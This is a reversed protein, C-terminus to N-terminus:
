NRTIEAGNKSGSGILNTEPGLEAPFRGFVLILIIITIVWELSLYSFLVCFRGPHERCEGPFDRGAQGPTVPTPAAPTGPPPPGQPIEDHGGDPIHKRDFGWRFEM